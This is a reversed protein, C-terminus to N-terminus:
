RTESSGPWVYPLNDPETWGFQGYHIPDKRLLNSRHSAHFDERGLWPPLPPSESLNHARWIAMLKDQCTDQYGRLRWELCMVVGYAILASEYGKWMRAAPHNIWASPKIKLLAQVLQLVEVRQKCLRQRYLVRSSEVFDRYPLFTQM